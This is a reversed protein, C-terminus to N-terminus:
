CRVPFRVIGKSAQLGLLTGVRGRDEGKLVKVNDKVKPQMPKLHELPFTIMENIGSLFVCCLDESLLDFVVGKAGPYLGRFQSNEKDWHIGKGYKWM